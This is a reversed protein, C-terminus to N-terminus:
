HPKTVKAIQKLSHTLISEDMDSMLIEPVLEEPLSKLRRCGRSVPDYFSHSREFKTVPRIGLARALIYHQKWSGLPEMNTDPTPVYKQIKDSSLPWCLQESCSKWLSAAANTEPGLPDSSPDDAYFRYSELCNSTVRSSALPFTQKISSIIDEHKRLESFWELKSQLLLQTHRLLPLEHKTLQTHIMNLVTTLNGHFRSCLAGHFLHHFTLSDPRVNFHSTLSFYIGLLVDLRGKKVDQRLLNNLTRTNPRLGPNNSAMYVTFEFAQRTDEKALFDVVINLTTQDCISLCINSIVYSLYSPDVFECSEIALGQLFYEDISLGQLRAQKLVELKYKLGPTARFIIYWTLQDAAIGRQIMTMLWKQMYKMDRTFVALYLIQNFLNVDLQIGSAIMSKYLELIASTDTTKAFFYLAYRYVLKKQHDSMGSASSLASVTLKVLDSVSKDLSGGEFSMFVLSALSRAYNPLEAPRHPFAPVSHKSLSRNRFMQRVLSKPTLLPSKENKDLCSSAIILKICLLVNDEVYQKQGTLQAIEMTQAAEQFLLFRDSDQDQSSVSAFSNSKRSAHELDADEKAVPSMPPLTTDSIFKRLGVLDVTESPGYENRARAFAMRRRWKSYAPNDVPLKRVRKAALVEFAGFIIDQIENDYDDLIPNFAKLSDNNFYCIRNDVINKIRPNAKWFESLFSDTGAPKREIDNIKLEKARSSIRRFNRYSSGLNLYGSGLSWVSDKFQGTLPILAKM